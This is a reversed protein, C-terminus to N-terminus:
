LARISISLIFEERGLFDELGLKAEVYVRDSLVIVRICEKNVLSEAKIEDRYVRPDLFSCHSPLEAPTSPEVLKCWTQYRSGVESNSNDHSHRRLDELYVVVIFVEGSESNRFVLEEHVTNKQGLEIFCRQSAIWGTSSEAVEFHLDKPPMITRLWVYTPSRKLMTSNSGEVYITRVQIKDFRPLVQRWTLFLEFAPLAEFRLLISRLYKSKCYEASTLRWSEMMRNGSKDPWNELTAYSTNSGTARAIFLANPPYRTYRNTGFSLLKLFIAPRAFIDDRMRCNLIMLWGDIVQQSQPRNYSCPCGFSPIQLGKNTVLSIGEVGEGPLSSMHLNKDYPLVDGSDLFYDLTEALLSGPSAYASVNKLARFNAFLSEDDTKKLIEEQLRTFAKWGEGYLLPMNVDFLGLLSYARDEVRTTTRKAAWSMKRAVGIDAIAPPNSLVEYDISTIDFLLHLLEIKNGLINWDKSIFVVYYSAILEQLTWGRTFWRSKRFSSSVNFPSESECPEVDALYAYCIGAKRYWLYMSNIAESLEASSSKDICCTDIWLYDYGDNKALECSKVIKSFRPNRKPVEGQMDQLIVEDEGWTHSLIAYKFPSKENAVVEGKAWEVRLTTTNLLRM